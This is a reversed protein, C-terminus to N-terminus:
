HQTDHADFPPPDESPDATADAIRHNEDLWDGLDILRCRQSCFPRWTSTATWEVPKGCHPCAVTTTM